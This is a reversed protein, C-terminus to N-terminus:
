VCNRSGRTEQGHAELDASSCDDKYLVSLDEMLTGEPIVPWKSVRIKLYRPHAIILKEQAHALEFHHHCEGSVTDEDPPEHIELHYKEAIKRIIQEKASAPWGKQRYWKEKNQKPVEFVAFGGSVRLFKFGCEGLAGETRILDSLVDEEVGRGIEHSLKRVRALIDLEM